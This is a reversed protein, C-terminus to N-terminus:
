TRPVAFRVNTMNSPIYTPQSTRVKAPEAPAAPDRKMIKMTISRGVMDIADLRKKVEVAMQYIFQEAQDNNEFRIGYQLLEYSGLIRLRSFPSCFSVNIECSVSKRPKDSELQKDDVGRLGNYLTEGTAKGLAEILQAKSKKVLEGLKITGLKELAKHKAQRGFGHLDSIELPALFEPVDEPSLHFSGGPKAKRTALRALLINHSIGISVIPSVFWMPNSLEFPLITSSCTSECSTAKRVEARITEAFDKAPDYQSGEIAARQRLQSVTDTVDILAEDVSVAQLDDAHSM